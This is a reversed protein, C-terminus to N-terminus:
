QESQVSSIFSTSNVFNNKNNVADPPRNGETKRSFLARWTAMPLSYDFEFVELLLTLM